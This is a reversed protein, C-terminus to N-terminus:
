GEPKMGSYDGILELVLAAGPRRVEPTSAESERQESSLKEGGMIFRAM